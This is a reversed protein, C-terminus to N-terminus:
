TTPLSAPPVFHTIEVADRDLAFRVGEEAPKHAAEYSDAVVTWNSVEPSTAVWTDEDGNYIVRIRDMARRRSYNRAEGQRLAVESRSIAIQPLAAIRV